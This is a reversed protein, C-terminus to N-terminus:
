SWLTPPRHDSACSEVKCSAATTVDFHGSLLMIDMLQSVVFSSAAVKPRQTVATGLLSVPLRNFPQGCRLQQSDGKTVFYFPIGLHFCQLLPACLSDLHKAEKVSCSYVTSTVM